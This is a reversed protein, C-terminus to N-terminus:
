LGNSRNAAAFYTYRGLTLLQRTAPFDYGNVPRSSGAGRRIDALLYTGAPSGDSRWLEPGHVGDDATFLLLGNADTLDTPTPATDLLGYLLTRPELPEIAPASRRRNPHHM